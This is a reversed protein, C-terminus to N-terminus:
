EGCSAAVLHHAHGNEFAELGLDRSTYHVDESPKAVRLWFPGDAYAALRDYLQDYDRITAEIVHRRGDYQVGDCDRGGEIVAVAGGETCARIQQQLALRLQRADHLHDMRERHVRHLLRLVFADNAGPMTTSGHHM